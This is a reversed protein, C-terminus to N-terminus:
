ILVMMIKLLKEKGEFYGHGKDKLSISFCFQKGALAIGCEPGYIFYGKWKGRVSPVIASNTGNTLM